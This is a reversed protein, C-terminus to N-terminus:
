IEECKNKINLNQIKNCLSKDGSNAVNSYIVNDKCNNRVDITSIENCDETNGSKLAKTSIFSNECSKDGECKSIDWSSIAKNIRVSTTEEPKQITFEEILEENESLESQKEVPGKFISFIILVAFLILVILTITFASKMNKKNSKIKRVAGRKKRSNHKM